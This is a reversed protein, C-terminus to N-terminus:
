AAEKVVEQQSKESAIMAYIAPVVFLALYHDSAGGLSGDYVFIGPFLFYVAWAGRVGERAMWNVAAAVGVLTWLFITFELHLAMM